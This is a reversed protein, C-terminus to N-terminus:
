NKHVTVAIQGAAPMLCITMNAVCLSCLPRASDEAAFLDILRADRLQALLGSQCACIPWNHVGAATELQAM